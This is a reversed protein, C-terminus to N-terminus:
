KVTIIIIYTGGFAEDGRDYDLTVYMGICPKSDLCEIACEFVEVMSPM